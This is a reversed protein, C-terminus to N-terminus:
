ITPKQAATGQNKRARREGPLISFYVFRNVPVDLGYRAALRVVTGNQYEIESPRGAWVDRTLSATAEYRYTDFAGAAQDIYKREVKVGKARAVQWVEEMLEFMLTRIEPISRMEGYTTRTVAMLGSLCISIFKKWREAEIDDPVINRIGAADFVRSVARVRETQLDDQESFIITPEVGLHQIIGPAKVESFIRCLGSLVQDTPLIGALEEVSLVGNQLPLVLTDPGLIGAIGPAVESVQWSKVAVLVLDPAPIASLDSVVKIEPLYANGKISELRLGHRHMAEAHAGRAFFVLDNGAEALRAGFYGGVGGTGIIAIKM